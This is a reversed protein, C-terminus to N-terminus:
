HSLHLEINEQRCLDRVFEIVLEDPYKLLPEEPDQGEVWGGRDWGLHSGAPLRKLLAKLQDTGTVTIKVWESETVENRPTTIEEITKTRNTGTILTYQWDGDDEDFWSYLEYGKMSSPLADVGVSQNDPECAAVIISVLLLGLGYASKRNEFM